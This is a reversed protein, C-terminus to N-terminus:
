LRYEKCLSKYFKREEMSGISIKCTNNLFSVEMLFTLLFIGMLRNKFVFIVLVINLDLQLLWWEYECLIAHIGGSIAKQSGASDIEIPM